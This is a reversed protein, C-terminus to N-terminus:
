FNGGGFYVRSVVQCLQKITVVLDKPLQKVIIRLFNVELM